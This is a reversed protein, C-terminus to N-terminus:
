SKGKPRAAGPIGTSFSVFLKVMPHKRNLGVTINGAVVGDIVHTLPFRSWLKDWMESGGIERGSLKRKWAEIARGAESDRDYGVHVTGLLLGCTTDIVLDTYMSSILAGGTLGLGAGSAALSAVEKIGGAAIVRAASSGRTVAKGHKIGMVREAGRRGYYTGQPMGIGMATLSAISDEQSIECTELIAEIVTLIAAYIGVAHRRAAAVRWLDSGGHGRYVAEATPLPEGEFLSGGRPIAEGDALFEDKALAEITKNQLPRQPFVPLCDLGLEDDCNPRVYSVIELEPMLYESRLSVWSSRAMRRRTSASSTPRKLVDHIPYVSLLEGQCNALAPTTCEACSSSCFYSWANPNEEAVRLSASQGWNSGDLLGPWVVSRNVGVVFTEDSLTRHIGVTSNPSLQLDRLFTITGTENTLTRVRPRQFLTSCLLTGLHGQFSVKWVTKGYILSGVCVSEGEADRIETFKANDADYWGPRLEDVIRAARTGSPSSKAPRFVYGGTRAVTLHSITSVTGGDDFIWAPPTAGGQCVLGGLKGSVNAGVTFDNVALDVVCSKTSVEHLLIGLSLRVLRIIDKGM